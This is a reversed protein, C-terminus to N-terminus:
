GGEALRQFVKLISIDATCHRICRGCGVCGPRGFKELIYKGKRFCRHRLREHRDKRFNENGAVVAFAELQCGDWRRMREGHHLDLAVEDVFDFCYCTPCVMNCSGCSFCFKAEEEWLKSEHHAQLRAPLESTDYPIRSPWQADKNRDFAEAQRRQAPTANPLNKVLAAGKESGVQVAFDDGIDVLLLDYIPGRVRHTKMDKCFCNEDCPEACDIGILTLGDRRNAYKAEPMESTFPADMMWLANIDCPHLGFLITPTVDAEPEYRVDGTKEDRGYRVLTEVGPIAILKASYYNFACPLTVDESATVHQLKVHGGQAAVPAYTRATAILRDLFSPLGSKSLSKVAM